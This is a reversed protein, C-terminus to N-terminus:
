TDEAARACTNPHPESEVDPATPDEHHPKEGGTDVRAAFRREVRDRM